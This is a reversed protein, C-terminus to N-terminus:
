PVTHGNKDLAEAQLRLTDAPAITDTHPTITVATVFQMVNVSASGVVEGASAVIRTIGNGRAIALGTSDVTAIQTNDTAWNVAVDMMPRGIQDRVDARLRVTDGLASFAVTDPDLVITTPAPAEVALSAHGTVGSSTATVETDGAARGAVLGFTDVTAVGTDSSAWVFQLDAVPYDNADAAQATLRLTDGEVVTDAAPEVTVTTLEQLVTM